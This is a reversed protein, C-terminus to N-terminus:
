VMFENEGKRYGMNYFRRYWEPKKDLNSKCRGRRGHRYGRFFARTKAKRLQEEEYIQHLWM